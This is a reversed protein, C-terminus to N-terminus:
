LALVYFEEFVLKPSQPFSTTPLIAPFVLSNKNPATAKLAYPVGMFAHDRTNQNSSSLFLGIMCIKCRSKSIQPLRHRSTTMAILRPQKQLEWRSLCQPLRRVNPFLSFTYHSPLFFILPELFKYSLRLLRALQVCLCPIAL